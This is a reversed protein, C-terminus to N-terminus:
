GVVSMSAVTKQPSTQEALTRARRAVHEKLEEYRKVLQNKLLLLELNRM